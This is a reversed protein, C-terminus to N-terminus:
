KLFLYMINEKINLLFKYFEDTTEIRRRMMSICNNNVRVECAVGGYEKPSYDYYNFSLEVNSSEDILMFNYCIDLYYIRKNINLFDLYDETEYIFLSMYELNKKSFKKFKSKIEKYIDKWTM